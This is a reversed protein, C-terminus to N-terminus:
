RGHSARIRRCIHAPTDEGPSVWIRRALAIIKPRQRRAFDSAAAGAEVLANGIAILARRYVDLLIVVAPLRYPQNMGDLRIAM